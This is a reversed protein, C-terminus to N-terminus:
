ALTRSFFHNANKRKAGLPSASDTEISLGSENLFGIKAGLKVGGKKPHQAVYVAAL